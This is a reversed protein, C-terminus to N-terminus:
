TSVDSIIDDLQAYVAEWSLNEVIAQRANVGIKDALEKNQLIKTINAAIESDNQGIM